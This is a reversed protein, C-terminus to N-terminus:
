SPRGFAISPCTRASRWRPRRDPRSDTSPRSGGQEAGARKAARLESLFPRLAVAGALFDTNRSLLGLADRLNLQSFGADHRHRNPSCKISAPIDHNTFQYRQIFSSDVNIPLMSNQVAACIEQESQPLHANTHAPSASPPWGMVKMLGSLRTATHTVNTKRPAM